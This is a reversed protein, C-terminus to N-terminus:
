HSFDDSVRSHGTQNSSHRGMSGLYKNFWDVTEQVAEKEFGAYDHDAEFLWIRKPENVNNIIICANDPTIKQDRTTGLVLTTSLQKLNGLVRNDLGRLSRFWEKKFGFPGKYKGTGPLRKGIKELELEKQKVEDFKTLMIKEFLAGGSASVRAKIRPNPPL